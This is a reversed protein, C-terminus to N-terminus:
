MSLWNICNFLYFYIVELFVWTVGPHYFSASGWDDQPGFCGRVQFCLVSGRQQWSVPSRPVAPVKVFAIQITITQQQHPHSRTSAPHEKGKLHLSQFCKKQRGMGGTEPADLQGQGPIWGMPCTTHKYTFLFCKSKSGARECVRHTAKFM